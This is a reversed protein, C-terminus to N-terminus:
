RYSIEHHGGVDYDEESWAQLIRMRGKRTGAGLDAWEPSRLYLDILWKFKGRPAQRRGNAVAIPQGALLARYAEMFETSGYENPLRFRGGRDRRFYWVKRGHRTIQCQVFPLRPRPM